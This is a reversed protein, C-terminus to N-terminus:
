GYECLGDQSRFDQFSNGINLLRYKIVTVFITIM